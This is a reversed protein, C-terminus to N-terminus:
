QKYGQPHWKSPKESNPRWATGFGTGHTLSRDQIRQVALNAIDHGLNQDTGPRRFNVSDVFGDLWRVVNGVNSTQM